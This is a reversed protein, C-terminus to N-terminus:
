TLMDTIHLVIAPPVQKIKLSTSAPQSKCILDTSLQLDIWCPTANDSYPQQQKQKKKFKGSTICYKQTKVTLHNRSVQICSPALTEFTNEKLTIM